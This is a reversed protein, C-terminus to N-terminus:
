GPFGSLIAVSDCVYSNNKKEDPPRRLFSNNRKLEINTGTVYRWSQESRILRFQKALHRTFIEM